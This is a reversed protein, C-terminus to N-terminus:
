IKYEMIKNSFTQCFEELNEDSGYHSGGARPHGGGNSAYGNEFLTRIEEGVHLGRNDANESARISLKNNKPTACIIVEYGKENIAYECLENVDGDSAHPENNLYLCIKGQYKGDEEGELLDIFEAEEIQKNIAKWKEKLFNKEETTFGDFGNIYRQCFKEGWYKYYIFNLNKAINNPLNHHWLDYDKSIGVLSKLHDCKLGQDLLLHKYCLTAGCHKGSTDVVCNRFGNLANATDHHDLLIFNKPFIEALYPAVSIDAIFVKHFKKPDDLLREVFPDVNKYTKFALYIKSSPGYKQKIHNIICIASAGGDLDNHLVLQFEKPKAM